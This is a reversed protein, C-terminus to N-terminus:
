GPVITITLGSERLWLLMSPTLAEKPTLAFQLRYNDGRGSRGMIKMAGPSKKKVHFGYRIYM